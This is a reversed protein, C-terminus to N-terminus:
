FEGTKSNLLHVIHLTFIVNLIVRIDQLYTSSLIFDIAPLIKSTGGLLAKQEELDSDYIKSNQGM